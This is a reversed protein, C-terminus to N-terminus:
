QKRRGNGCFLKAAQRVTLQFDVGRDRRARRRTPHFEDATFPSRRRKPDRHIECITAVIFSTHDWSQSIRERAM